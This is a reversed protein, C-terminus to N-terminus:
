GVLVWMVVLLFHCPLLYEISINTHVSMSNWSGAIAIRSLWWFCVFYEQFGTCVNKFLKWAILTFQASFHLLILCFIISFWVPPPTSPTSSPSSSSSSSSSSSEPNSNPEKEPEETATSTSNSGGKEGGGDETSRPVRIGLKRRGVLGRHRKGLGLGLKCLVGAENGNGSSSSFGYTSRAVHALSSESSANCRKHSIRGFFKSDLFSSPFRATVPLSVAHLLPHFCLSSSSPAKQLSSGRVTLPSATGISTM